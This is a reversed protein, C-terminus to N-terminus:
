RLQGSSKNKLSRLAPIAQAVNMEREGEAAFERSRMVEKGKRLSTISLVAPDSDYASQHTAEGGYAEFPVRSLERFERGEVDAVPQGAGHQMEEFAVTPVSATRKKISKRRGNASSGSEEEQQPREKLPARSRSSGRSSIDVVDDGAMSGWNPKKLNAYLAPSSSRTDVALDEYSEIAEGRIDVLLTAGTTEDLVHPPMRAQQASSTPKSRSVWMFPAVGVSGPAVSAAASGTGAATTAPATSTSTSVNEWSSKAGWLGAVLHNSSRGSSSEATGPREDLLPNSPAKKSKRKSSTFAFDLLTNTTPTSSAVANNLQHLPAPSAGIPSPAVIGQAHTSTTIPPVGVDKAKVKKRFLTTDLPESKEREREREKEKERDREKEKERDREKEREREDGKERELDFARVVAEAFANRKRSRGKREGDGVDGKAGRSSYGTDPTGPVGGGKKGGRGRGTGRGRGVDEHSVNSAPNSSSYYPNTQGSGSAGHIDQHQPQQFTPPGRYDLGPDYHYGDEEVEGGRRDEDSRVSEGDGLVDLESPHENDDDDFESPFREHKKSGAGGGIREVGVDLGREEGDKEDVGGREGVRGLAFGRTAPHSHLPADDLPSTTASDTHSRARRKTTTTTAAMANPPAGSTPTATTTASTAASGSATPSPSTPSGVAITQAFTAPRLSVHHRLPVGAGHSNRSLSGGLNGDERGAGTGQGPAAHPPGTSAVSSTVSTVSTAVRPSGFAGGYHQHSWQQQTSGSRSHHHHVSSSFQHPVPPVPPPYHHYVRKWGSQDPSLGRRERDAREKGKAGERERERQQERERERERERVPSFPLMPSGGGGSTFASLPPPSFTESGSASGLNLIDLTVSRTPMPLPRPGGPTVSGSSGSPFSSLPFSSTPTTALSAPGGNGPVPLTRRTAGGHPGAIPTLLTPSSPTSTVYGSGGGGGGGVTLGGANPKRSTRSDVALGIGSTSISVVPRAGRGGSISSASLTRQRVFPQQAHSKPSVVSMPARAGLPKAPVGAAPGGIATTTTSANGSSLNSTTTTATATTGPSPSANGATALDFATNLKPRQPRQSTVGGPSSTAPSSTSSTATTTPSTNNSTSTTAPSVPSTSNSTTTPTPNAGPLAAHEKSPGRGIVEEAGRRLVRYSGDGPGEGSSVWGGETSRDRRPGRVYNRTNDRSLSRKNASPRTPTTHANASSPTASGSTFSPSTHSASSSSTPGVPLGVPPGRSRSRQRGGAMSHSHSHGHSSPQHHSAPALTAPNLVLQVPQGHPHPTPKNLSPNRSHTKKSPGGRDSIAGGDNDTERERQEREKRERERKKQEQRKQHQLAQRSPPRSPPPPPLGPIQTPVQPNNYNNNLNSGSTRPTVPKSTPKQPNPQHIRAPASSAEVGGPVPPIRPLPRM